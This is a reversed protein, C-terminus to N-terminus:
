TYGSGTPQYKECGSPIYIYKLVSDSLWCNGQQTGTFPMIIGTNALNNSSDNAFIKIGIGPVNALLCTAPIQKTINSWNQVGNFNVASDNAWTDCNVGTANWSFIYYNLATNDAWLVSFLVNDLISPNTNNVGINTFTPPTTDAGTTAVWTYGDFLGTSTGSILYQNTGIEFYTSTATLSGAATPMTKMIGDTITTNINWSTGNWAFGYFNGTLTGYILYENSDKQFANPVLYTGVSTLGNGITTNGKWSTGNWSYNYTVKGASEGEIAYLNNSMNFISITGWSGVDTLGVEFTTNRVWSTGNWAFGTPLGSNNQAIIYYNGGWQFASPASNTGIDYTTLGTELTTNKAWTTGDWSSVNFTGAGTGSILNLTNGIYLASPYSVSSLKTLGTLITSNYQWNTTGWETGLFYGQDNGVILYYASSINFVSPAVYLGTNWPPNYTTNSAWGTGNWTFSQFAGLDDGSILYWNNDKNFVAEASHSGVDGLNNIITSNVAWGTGNWVFGNYVGDGEGSILYWDPDKYFVDPATYSGVDPLSNNITTNVVWTTGNWLFGNFDGDLEGAILYTYSDKTFVTPISYTGLDPLSSNITSNSNWSTGNWVYGWFQGNAKGAILCLDSGIYFETSAAYDGVDPLGNTITSGGWWEAWEYLNFGNMNIVWEIQEDPYVSTFIGIVAGKSPLQNLATFNTWTDEGTGLNIGSKYKLTYNREQIQYDRRVDYFTINNILKSASLAPFKTLNFEAIKIDEGYQVLPNYSSVLSLETIQNSFNFSITKTKSNYTKIIGNITETSDTNRLNTIYTKNKINSYSNLDSGDYRMIGEKENSNTSFTQHQMKSFLFLTSVILGIIIGGIIIYTKWKM